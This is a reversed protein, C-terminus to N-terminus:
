MYISSSCFFSIPEHPFQVQLRHKMLVDKYGFTITQIRYKEYLLKLQLLKSKGFIVIKGKKGNLLFFFHPFVKFYFNLESLLVLQAQWAACDLRHMFESLALARKPGWITSPCPNCSICVTKQPYFWGCVIDCQAPIDRTVSPHM